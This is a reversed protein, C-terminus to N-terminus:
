RSVRCESVWLTNEMRQDYSDWTWATGDVHTITWDTPNTSFDEDLVVGGIGGEFISCNVVVGTQPYYGLNQVTADITYPGAPIVGTPSNLSVAKMDNGYVVTMEISVFVEPDDVDNSAIIVYGAYTGEGLGTSDVTVTM